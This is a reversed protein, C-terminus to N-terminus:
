PTDLTYYATVATAVLVLISGMAAYFFGAAQAGQGSFFLAIALAAFAVVGGMSLAASASLFKFFLAKM